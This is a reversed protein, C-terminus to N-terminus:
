SKALPSGNVEGESREPDTRERGSLPELEIGVLEVLGEAAQPIQEGRDTRKHRPKHRDGAFTLSTVSEPVSSEYFM